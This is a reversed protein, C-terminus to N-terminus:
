KRYQERNSGFVSRSTVEPLASLLDTVPVFTAETYRRFSVSLEVPLKKIKLSRSTHNCPTKKRRNLRKSSLPLSTTFRKDMLESGKTTYEGLSQGPVISDVGRSLYKASCPRFILIRFSCCHDERLPLLSSDPLKALRRLLSNDSSTCKAGPLKFRCTYSECPLGSLTLERIRADLGALSPDLELASDGIVGVDCSCWVEVV